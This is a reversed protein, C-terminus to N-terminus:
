ITAIIPGFPAPFDVAIFAIKPRRFIVLPETSKSPFSIVSVAGSRTTVFPM